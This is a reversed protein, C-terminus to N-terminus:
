TGSGPELQTAGPTPREITAKARLEAVYAQQKQRRQSERMAQTVAPRAEEFSLTGAPRREIVKIVHYGDPAEIVDSLQGIPLSFAATALPAPMSERAVFGRDGGHAASEADVGYTKAFQAFDAGGRLQNHLETALQRAKDREAQPATPGVRVALERLHAEDGHQFARANEDYFRREADADLKDGATLQNMLREVMLTKRTEYVLRAQNLGSRELAAAFAADGGLRQKSRAIEAQVEDDTVHIQQKVAAQYLLELDILSELAADSLKAIEESSPADGREVIVSKVVANVSEATIPAGNVRAVIEASAPVVFVIVVASVSLVSACLAAAGRGFWITM